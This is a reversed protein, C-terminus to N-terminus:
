GLHRLECTLEENVKIGLVGCRSGERYKCEECGVGPLLRVLVNYSCSFCIFEWRGDLYGVTRTDSSGCEPCM